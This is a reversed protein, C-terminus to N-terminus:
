PSSGSSFALGFDTEVTQVCRYVQPSKQLDEGLRVFDKETMLVCRATKLANRVAGEFHSDHDPRVVKRSLKMGFSEVDRFFREPNGIGCLAWMESGAAAEGNGAGGNIDLQESGGNTKLREGVGNVIESISFKVDPKEGNCKLATDAPAHDQVLSRNPGAPWLDALRRPPESWDLRVTWAPRLRSDEFGDDSIIYDFDLDLERATKYRNPTALVTAWPLKKKLLEFEDCAKAHCLVAIKADGTMKSLNVSHNKLHEALWAVFPTKGAGGALFSGVVILKAHSLPKGPRLFIWHHLKYLIRYILSLLPFVGGREQQEDDGSDNQLSAISDRPNGQRM